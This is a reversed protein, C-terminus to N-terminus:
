LREPCPSPKQSARSQDQDISPIIQKCCGPMRHFCCKDSGAQNTAIKSYSGEVSFYRRAQIASISRKAVETRTTARHVCTSTGLSHILQHRSNETQDRLSCKYGGVEPHNWASEFLNNSLICILLRFTPLMLQKHPCLRDHGDGIQM